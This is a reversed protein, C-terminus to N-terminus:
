TKLFRGDDRAEGLKGLRNEMWGVRAGPRHDFDPVYPKLDLLPTGDVMDVDRIHLTTGEIRDLRIISLGIPNPRAPARTAFLGHEAADLFPTVKLDYGRCLHFAYILILHSFGELDQLGAEYEPSLDIWGQVGSSSTPQIPTGKPEQYPTHIVGIAQFTFTETLESMM